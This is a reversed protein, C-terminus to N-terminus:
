RQLPVFQSTAACDHAIVVPSYVTDTLDLERSKRLLAVRVM